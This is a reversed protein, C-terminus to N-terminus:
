ELELQDEASTEDIPLGNYNPSALAANSDPHGTFKAIFARLATVQARGLKIKIPETGTATKFNERELEIRDVINVTSGEIRAPRRGLTAAREM